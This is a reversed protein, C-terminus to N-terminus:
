SIAQVLFWLVDTQPLIWGHSLRKRETPMYCVTQICSFTRIIRGAFTNWLTRCCHVMNRVANTVRCWRPMNSSVGCRGFCFMLISWKTCKLMMLSMMLLTMFQRAPRKWWWKLSLWKMLRWHWDRCPFLCIARVANLGRIDQWFIFSM